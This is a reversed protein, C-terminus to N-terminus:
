DNGPPINIDALVEGGGLQVIRTAVIDVELRCAVERLARDLPVPVANAQYGDVLRGGDLRATAADAENGPGSGVSRGAAVERVHREAVDLRLFLILEKALE